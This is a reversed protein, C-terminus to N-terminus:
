FRVYSSMYLCNRKEPIELNLTKSLEEVVWKAIDYEKNNKIDEFNDEEM